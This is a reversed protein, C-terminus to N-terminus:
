NKVFRKLSQEGNTDYVKVLYMGNSYNEVPIIVTNVGEIVSVNKSIILKGSADYIMMIIDNNKPSMISVTLESNAPNPFMESIELSDVGKCSVLITKVLSERGNFDVQVIRYYYENEDPNEDSFNYTMGISSNGSGTVTGISEYQYGDLSREVRYYHNNIESQTMWSLKVIGNDCEGTVSSVEVPLPSNEEWAGITPFARPTGYIDSTISGISTGTQYNGVLELQCNAANQFNPNTVMSNNDGNGAGDHHNTGQWGALNYFSLGEQAVYAGNPTYYLNYDSRIFTSSTSGANVCAYSSNSTSYFINNRVYSSSKSNSTFHICEKSSYISNHQYDNDNSSNDSVFIGYESNCIFNNYFHCYDVGVSLYIGNKGGSIINNYINSVDSSSMGHDDLWIAAGDAKDSSGITFINNHINYLEM